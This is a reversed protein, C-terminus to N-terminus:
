VSVYSFEANCAESATIRYEDGELLTIMGKEWWAVQEDNKYISYKRGRHGYIDYVDTAIQCSYHSRIYSVTRFFSILGDAFTIEYNAKFLHFRKNIKAKLVDSNANFVLIEAMFQIPQRSVTYKLAGNVSIRHQDGISLKKQQIDIIM